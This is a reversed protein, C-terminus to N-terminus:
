WSVGDRFTGDLISDVWRALRAHSSLIEAIACGVLVLGMAGISASAISVALPADPCRSPTCGGEVTPVVGLALVLGMAGATTAGIGLTHGRWEDDDIARLELRARHMADLDYGAVVAADLHLRSLQGRVLGTDSEDYTPEARQAVSANTDLLSVFFFVGLACLSRGVLRRAACTMSDWSAVLARPVSRM